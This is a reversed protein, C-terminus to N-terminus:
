YCCRKDTLLNHASCCKPCISKFTNFISPNYFNTIANTYYQYISSKFQNLSNALHDFHCTDSLTNKLKPIRNFNSTQFHKTRCKPILLDTASSNCTVRRNSRAKVYHEIPIKFHGTKCKYYFILDKYEHWYSVPLLKLQQLRNSYTTDDYYSLNLIYKTARRQLSEVKKINVITQPSWLESAYGIHPRVYSLYLLKRANIDFSSSNTHRRLFGLM